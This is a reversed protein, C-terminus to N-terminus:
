AQGNMTLRTHHARRQATTLAPASRQPVACRDSVRIAERRERELCRAVNATETCCAHPVTVETDAQRPPCPGAREVARSSNATMNHPLIRTASKYSTPRQTRLLPAGRKITAQSRELARPSNAAITCPLISAPSSPVYAQVTRSTPSGHAAYPQVPASHPLMCSEDVTTVACRAGGSEGSVADEDSSNQECPQRSVSKRDSVHQEGGDGPCVGILVLPSTAPFPAAPKPKEVPLSATADTRAGHPGVRAGMGMSSATKRAHVLRKAAIRRRYYWAGAVLIALIMLAMIWPVHVEVFATSSSQARQQLPDLVEQPLSAWAPPPAGLLVTTVLPPSVSLVPVLLQASLTATDASLVDVVVSAETTYLVMDIKLSAASVNILVQGSDM